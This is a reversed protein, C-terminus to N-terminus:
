PLVHPLTADYFAGIGRPAGGDETATKANKVRVGGRRTARSVYKM